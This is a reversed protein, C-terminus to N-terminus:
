SASKGLAEAIDRSMGAVTRELEELWLLSPEDNRLAMELVHSISFLEAMGLMGTRVDPIAFSCPAPGPDNSLSSFTKGPDTSM